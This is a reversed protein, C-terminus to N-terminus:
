AITRQKWYEWAREFEATPAPPDSPQLYHVTGGLLISQAQLRANLNMFYARGVAVHLSPAVVVAGRGRMLVAAKDGLAGTIAQGIARARMIEDNVAGVSRSEFVPVGSILFNAMELVPLLPVSSAAFPILESAQSHVIAMVDPRARYIECHLFRDPHGASLDGSMLRGNLDYEGIEQSGLFIRNPNSQDRVSISGYGDLVGETQLIRGAMALEELLPHNQPAAEEPEDALASLRGLTEIGRRRTVAVPHRSTESTPNASLTSGPT